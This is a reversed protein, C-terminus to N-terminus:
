RASRSSRSAHFRPPPSRGATAARKSSCSLLSRSGAPGSAPPPSTFRTASSPSRARSVRTARCRRPSASRSPSCCRRCSGGSPAGGPRWSRSRRGSRARAAGARAVGARVVDRAGRAVGLLPVRRRARAGGGERGDARDPRALRGGAGGRGGGLALWLTRTRTEPSDVVFALVAAGGVCGLILALGLFRVLWLGWDVAASDADADLIQEAVGVGGRVPEGVSFVFAGRIPHSDESLVRWAVTYTDDPSTTPCRRGRGRRRTPQEAEGVDVREADSDYVRVSTPILGVREDFRLVLQEPRVTSSRGTPPSTDILTAHALAPSPAAAALAAATATAALGCAVRQRLRTIDQEKRARRLPRRAAARPVDLRASRPRGALASASARFRARSRRRARWLRRASRPRRRRGRGRSCRARARPRRRAAAARRLIRALAFPLQLAIGLLFTTELPPAGRSRATTSAAARLAGPLRVDRARDRRLGLTAATARRRRRRDRSGRPDARLLVIAAALGLGASAFRLYAHGTDSLLHAREHANPEALRYALAHALQAGTVALRPQRARRAVPARAAHYVAGDGSAAPATAPRGVSFVDLTRACIHGRNPKASPRASGRLRRRGRRGRSAASRTGAGRGRRALQDGVQRGVMGDAAVALLLHLEEVPEPVRGRECRSLSRSGCLRIPQSM